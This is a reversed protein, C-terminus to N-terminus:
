FDEMKCGSGRQCKKGLERGLKSMMLLVCQKTGVAVLPNNSIRRAISFTMLVSLNDILKFEKISFLWEVRERPGSDNYCKPLVNFLRRDRKHKGEKTPDQRGGKPM